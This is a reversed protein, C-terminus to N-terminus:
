KEVLSQIERLLRMNAREAETMDVTRDPSLEHYWPYARYHDYFERESSQDFAAYYRAYIEKRAYRLIKALSYSDSATLKWISDESLLDYTPSWYIGNAMRYSTPQDPFILFGNQDFIQRKSVRQGGGSLIVTQYDSSPVKKCDSETKRSFVDVKSSFVVVGDASMQLNYLRVQFFITVNQESIEGEAVARYSAQYINHSAQSGKEASFSVQLKDVKYSDGLKERCVSDREQQVRECVSRLNIGNGSEDILSTLYAGSEPVPSSPPSSQAEDPLSLSSQAAQKKVPQEWELSHFRIGHAALSETDAIVSVHVIGPDESVSLFLRMSLIADVDPLHGAIEPNTEPSPLHLDALLANRDIQASLENSANQSIEVYQELSIIREPRLLFFLAIIICAAMFVIGLCAFLKLKRKQQLISAYM